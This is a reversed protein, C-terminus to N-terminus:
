GRALNDPDTDLDGPSELRRVAGTEEVAIHLRLVYEHRLEVLRDQSVEADGREL